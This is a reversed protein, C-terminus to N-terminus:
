RIRVIRYPDLLGGLFDDTLPSIITGAVFQERHEYMTSVAIRVWQRIAEPVSSAATWGCVYQIEVSGPESYLSPWTKGYPLYIYPMEEDNLNVKYDTDATLTQVSGSTDTYKVHTM